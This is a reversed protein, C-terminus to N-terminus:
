LRRAYSAYSGRTTTKRRRLIRKTTTRIITAAEELDLVVRVIVMTTPHVVIIVEEQRLRTNDGEFAVMQAGITQTISVHSNGGELAVVQAGITQTIHIEEQRHLGISNGGELAVQVGITALNKKRPRHNRKRRMRVQNGQVHNSSTGHLQVLVATSATTTSKESIMM